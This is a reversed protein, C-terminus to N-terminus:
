DFDLNRAIYKQLHEEGNYGELLVWELLLNTTGKGFAGPMTVVAATSATLNEPVNKPFFMMTPTFMIGWKQVIEKEPMSQGDFDTVELDGFINIRIVFFDEKLKTAIEPVSYVKEHMRKCYGCGKQEFLILLRQQNENAEALDERLDMFTNSIWAEQYLGDEGLKASHAASAFLLFIITLRLFVAVM